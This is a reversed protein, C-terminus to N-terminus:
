PTWEGALVAWREHDRWKGCVKLYAPSRGELRFGLSRVLDISRANVPQINAELRHLKLETFCTKIVKTLGERMLGQGAHPLFGYYGLYASQFAGRVIENVNIVGAIDDSQEDIVLFGEQNQKKVSRLYARFKEADAPPTVLGRHLKRSRRVARLFNEMDSIVPKRVRVRSSARNKDM